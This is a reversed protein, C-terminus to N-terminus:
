VAGSRSVGEPERNPDVIAVESGSAFGWNRVNQFFLPFIGGDPAPMFHLVVKPLRAHGHKERIRLFMGVDHTLCPVRLVSQVPNRKNM